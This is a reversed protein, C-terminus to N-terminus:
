SGRYYSYNWPSFLIPVHFNQSADYVGFRIPVKGLFPPSPIDSALRGFYEDLHLLLEYRGNKLESPELVPNETRGREVTMVSKILEYEGSNNQISLDIKLDARTQGFYTDIAHLTLQGGTADSAAYAKSAFPAHGTVAKFAVLGAAGIGLRAFFGRRDLQSIKIVITRRQRPKKNCTFLRRLHEFGRPL